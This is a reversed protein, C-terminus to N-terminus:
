LDLERCVGTAFKMVVQEEACNNIFSRIKSVYNNNEELSIEECDIEEGFLDRYGSSGFQITKVVEVVKSSIKRLVERVINIFTLEKGRIPSREEGYSIIRNAETIGGYLVLSDKKSLLLRVIEKSWSNLIEVYVFESPDYKSLLDLRKDRKHVFLMRSIKYQIGLKQAISAEENYDDVCKEFYGKKKKEMVKKNIFSNLLYSNSFKYTKSTSTSGVRGWKIIVDNGDIEYFWFKNHQNESCIFYPM